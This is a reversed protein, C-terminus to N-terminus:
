ERITWTTPSEPSYTVYPCTFQISNRLHRAAEPHHVDIKDFARRISTCVADYPKRVHSPLKKRISGDPRIDKKLRENLKAVEADIEQLVADNVNPDQRAEALEKLKNRIARVNRRDVVDNADVGGALNDCQQDLDERDPVAVDPLDSDPVPSLEHYHIAEYPRVLPKALRELGLSDKLLISEGGYTLAWFDGKNILSNANSGIATPQDAAAERKAPSVPVLVKGEPVFEAMVKRVAAVIECFRAVKVRNIRRDDGPSNSRKTDCGAM